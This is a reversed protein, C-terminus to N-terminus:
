NRLPKGKQLMHQMRAQTKPEGILSLFAERELDLLYEESVVTGAVATGGTLVRILHKAIKEDHDSLYGSKKMGFVGIKLLAAGNEGQVKVVTPTKPVFNKAMQLAKQKADYLLYDRGVTVSDTARLHGLKQAERASTSVKALAITEFARQVLPMVPIDVGDPVMEMMRILLEKNGGGGPILGVGVEVLGMYTEAAAQVSHTSLAVEAGGGLTLGYPAAIVPKQLYKMRMNAHQFQKIVLSIEDWNEDQAEMLMLMLNAGVSFNVAESGIVLAEFNKEVEDASKFMMNIIDAGIAQKPSHLELCAVGDGLDILSAGNNGFVKKGSEKRAVLDIKREDRPDTKLGDGNFYVRYGPKSHDYFSKASKLLDLVVVPIVEGEEQMRKVSKEVGIADWTEFPGLEWNFGWKMADDIDTVTDAIQGLMNASYLLVRKLVNWIFQGAADKGYVLAKLKDNSNAANRAAEFSASALKRRPRYDMTTLDLALIERGNGTKERKFFGQGRKDGIWGKDVMQLLESPVDFVSQEEPDSTNEYVNRAVHVFTDLGVIDLTRFTASKPRGLVPGTLLDVEDVGFKTKSMEQLTVLLGYTGIRNAIFNPTDKAVVVGKGLVVEAFERMGAIIEPHTHSTPIIELLKMYRPPNFFHTGLFHQLFDDSRGVSMAGISVGSTNSSVISGLSRNEDVRALVSQKVALNEVVVEIIWDCENIRAFDDDFNGVEILDALETHYLPAPKAKFLGSKGAQSIRNRVVRHDLSLGQKQEEPTLERPVIDLLLSPIGVNALHGAIAAGMVGSGLVAVRRIPRM